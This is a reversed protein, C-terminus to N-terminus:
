RRKNYSPKIKNFCASVKNKRDTSVENSHKIVQIFNLADVKALKSKYLVKKDNRLSELATKDILKPDSKVVVMSEVDFCTDYNTQKDLFVAQSLLGHSAIIKKNKEKSFYKLFNADKRSLCYNFFTLIDKFVAYVRSTVIYYMVETEGKRQSEGVVVIFHKDPASRADLIDGFDYNM